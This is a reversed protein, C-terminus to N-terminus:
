NGAVYARLTDVEQAQQDLRAKVVDGISVIGVLEGREMVPLHRFRGRTMVAMAEEVTTDLHATEVTRKMMQGATLDLAGAHVVDRESVIGAVSGDKDRVLVAGIRRSSLVTTVDAMSTDPSVSAVAPDKHKLIAAVTM